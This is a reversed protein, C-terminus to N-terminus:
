KWTPSQVNTKGETRESAQHLHPIKICNKCIIAICSTMSTEMAVSLWHCQVIRLACEVEISVIESLRNIIMYFSVFWQLFSGCPTKKMVIPLSSIIFIQLLWALKGSNRFQNNMANKRLEIISRPFQAYKTCISNFCIGNLSILSVGVQYWFKWQFCNLNLLFDFLNNIYYVLLSLM